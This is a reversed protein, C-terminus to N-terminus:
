QDWGSEDYNFMFLSKALNISANLRISDKKTDDRMLSTWYRKIESKDPLDKNLKEIEQKICEKIEVNKLLRSGQSYATKESYGALIASKTANMSRAYYICFLHQQKTM